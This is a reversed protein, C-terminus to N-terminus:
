ASRTTVGWRGTPRDLQIVNMNPLSDMLKDIDSAVKKGREKEYHAYVNLTTRIDEHGMHHQTVKVDTGMGILLTCYSHRLVHPTLGVFGHAKAFRTLSRTLNEPHMFECDAKAVIRHEGVPKGLEILKQAQIRRFQVLYQVTAEDLPITRRGAKTKPPKPKLTESCLTQNVSITGEDADFDNWTVACVEGRRLGAFLMLRFAVLSPRPTSADLLARFEAIREKSLHEKEVTDVKPAKVKYCPNEAIIKDEKAEELIQYLTTRIGHATTGSLPKGSATPAKGNEDATMISAQFNKVDQRTIAAIRYDGFTININAVRGRDRAVTRPAIQPDAERQKLWDAAYEAFTTFRKGRDVGSELENRFERLCRGREKQTHGSVRFTKRERKIEGTADNQMQFEVRISNPGRWETSGNNKVVWAM